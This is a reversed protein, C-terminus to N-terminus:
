RLLKELGFWSVPDLAVGRYRTELHLHPGTSNGSSGGLGITEGADIKEGPKVTPLMLHGYVTEVGGSHTLVVYHGYGGKDYGTKTVIGSLACRVTDGLNLAIDIGHHFRGRTTSYGYLSTLKGEVPLKFDTIDYDPLEEQSPYYYIGPANKVWSGSETYGHESYVDTIYSLISIAKSTSVLTDAYFDNIISLIETDIEVVSDKGAVTEVLSSFVNSLTQGSMLRPMFITTTITILTVALLQIGSANKIKM